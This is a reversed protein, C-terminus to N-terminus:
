ILDIQRVEKEGYLYYRRLHYDDESESCTIRRGVHLNPKDECYWDSIGDYKWKGGLQESLQKTISKRRKIKFLEM